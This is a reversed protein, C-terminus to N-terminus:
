PLFNIFEHNKHYTNSKANFIYVLAYIFIQEVLINMLIEEVSKM